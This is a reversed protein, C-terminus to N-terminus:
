GAHLDDPNFSGDESILQDRAFSRWGEYLTTPAGRFTPGANPQAIAAYANYESTHQGRSAEEAVKKRIDALFKFHLLAGRTFGKARTGGANVDPPWVEHACKLFAYSWKWRILPTKNLAPGNLIDHSFFIRGRVGGKIWLTRTRKDLVSHYGSRDYLSCVPLPDEGRSCRNDEIAKDSYMDMMLCPMSMQGRADMEATLQQITKTDDHPFVLFEDADVHL